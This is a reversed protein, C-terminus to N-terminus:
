KGESKRNKQGKTEGPGRPGAESVRAVKGKESTTECDKEHGLGYRVWGRGEGRSQGEGGGVGRIAGRGRWRCVGRRTSGGKGKDRAEIRTRETTQLMMDGDWTKARANEGKETRARLHGIM